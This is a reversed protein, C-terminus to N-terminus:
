SHTKFHKLERNKVVKSLHCQFSVLQIISQESDLYGLPMIKFLNWEICNPSSTIIYSVFIAFMSGSFHHFWFSFTLCFHSSFLEPCIGHITEKQLLDERSSQSRMINSKSVCFWRMIKKKKGQNRLM